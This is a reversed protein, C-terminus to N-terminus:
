RDGKPLATNEPPMFDDRDSWASFKVLSKDFHLNILAEEGDRFKAFDCEALAPKDTEKYVQERYLFMVVDADQEINGAEHLDGLMPRKSERHECNRSLHSIALVPVDLDKAINKLADSVESVEKRKDGKHNIDGRMRQINDVVILDLGHRSKLRRCKSLLSLPTVATSEDIFLKTAALERSSELLRQSDSASVFGKRFQSANVKSEIVLMRDAIARGTMEEEFFAVTKKEYLANFVSIQGAFATKGMRPRAGLVILDGNRFGHTHQDISTIGSRVGTIEGRKRIELARFSEKLYDDVPLLDRKSKRSVCILAAQEAMGAIEALPKERVAQLADRLVIEAKRRAGAESIVKAYDVVLLSSVLAVSSADMVDNKDAGRKIVLVQDITDGASSMSLLLSYLDANKKTSFDEPTLVGSVDPISDPCVIMGGLMALEMDETM